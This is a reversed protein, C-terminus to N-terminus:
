AKGLVMWWFLSQFMNGLKGKITGLVRGSCWGDFCPNFGNWNTDNGFISLAERAGDMLVLISVWITTTQLHSIVDERAGDMLVLISVCILGILYQYQNRAERAGDMLVLISVRFKCNTAPLHYSGSCWGDFCPNFCYTWSTLQNTPRSGSCWGDFCPNFCFISQISRKRKRMKGLVMWWFLSQFMRFMSNCRCGTGRGSCWGDFCPNFGTGSRIARSSCGPKGLVMWWFLSQFGSRCWAAPLGRKKGLVMWWFLSQFTAPWVHVSGFPAKGLVMWWFLSQFKLRLLTSRYQGSKGLVM